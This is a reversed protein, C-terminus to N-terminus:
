RRRRLLLFGILVAAALCWYPYAEVFEFGDTFVQGAGSLAGDLIGKELVAQAFM